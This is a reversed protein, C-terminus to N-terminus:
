PSTVAARHHSEALQEGGVAGRAELHRGRDYSGSLEAVSFGPRVTTHTLRFRVDDGAAIM